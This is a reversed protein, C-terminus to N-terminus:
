TPANLRAEITRCFDQIETITADIAERQAKLAAVREYSKELTAQVQARRGDGPAYM